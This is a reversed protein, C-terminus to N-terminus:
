AIKLDSFLIECGPVCFFLTIESFYFLFGEGHQFKNSHMMVMTGESSLIDPFSTNVVWQLKSMPFPSHSFNM